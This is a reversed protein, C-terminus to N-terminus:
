VAISPFEIADDVFFHWSSRLELALLDLKAPLRIVEVKPFENGAETCEESVWSERLLEDERRFTM